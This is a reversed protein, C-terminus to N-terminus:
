DFKVPFMVVFETGNGVKSSCSISGNIQRLRDHVISLGLGTSSEGDTPRSSLKQFREFLLALEPEPIGIGEDRVVLRLHQNLAECFLYISRDRPTFKIANSILNDLVQIMITKHATVPPTDRIDLKLNINKRELDKRFQLALNEILVKPDFHEVRGSIGKEEIQQVELMDTLINLSHQASHQIQMIFEIQEPTLNVQDELLLECYSYIVGVPNRLDHSAMGIYSNKTKIHEMAISLDINKKRLLEGLSLNHNARKRISFGTSILVIISVLIGSYTVLAHIRQISDLQKAREILIANELNIFYENMARFQDMLRKGEGSSIFTQSDAFGGSEFLDIAYQLRNVRDGVINSYRQISDVPIIGTQNALMSFNHVHNQVMDYAKIYPDLFEPNGSLIYGRQGTEMDVLALEVKQLSDIIDRALLTLAAYEHRLENGRFHLVSTILLALVSFGIMLYILNYKLFKAM